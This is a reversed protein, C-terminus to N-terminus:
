EGYGMKPPEVKGAGSKENRPVWLWVAVAKLARLAASASGKGGPLKRVLAAFLLWMGGLVILAVVTPGALTALLSAALNMLWLLLVFAFLGTLLVKVIDSM